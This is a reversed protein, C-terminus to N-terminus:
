AFAAKEISQMNLEKSEQTNIIYEVEQSCRRDIVTIPEEHIIISKIQIDNNEIIIKKLKVPTILKLITSDKFSKTNLEVIDSERLDLTGIKCNKFSATGIHSLQVGSILRSINCNKFSADEINVIGNGTDFKNIRCDEFSHHSICYSSDPVRIEGIKCNKFGKMRSLRSSIFEIKDTKLDKFCEHSLETVFNPILIKNIYNSKITLSKLIVTNHVHIFKYKIGLAAAKLSFDNIKIYNILEMPAQELNSYITNISTNLYNDLNKLVVQQSEIKLEGQENITIYRDEKYRYLIASTSNIKRRTSNGLKITDTIKDINDKTDRYDTIYKNKLSFIIIHTDSKRNLLVYDNSNNLIIEVTLLESIQGNYSAM